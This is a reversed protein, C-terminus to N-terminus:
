TETCVPNHVSDDGHPQLLPVAASISCGGALEAVSVCKIMYLSMRVDCGVCVYVHLHSSLCGWM